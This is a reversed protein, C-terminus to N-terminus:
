KPRGAQGQRAEPSDPFRTRLLETYGAAAKADGLSREIRVALTLSQATPPAVDHYRQLFARAQQSRGRAQDLDALTFLAPPFQPSVALAQRLYEEARDPAGQRSLCLGANFYALEPTEYSRNEAALRFQQEAEATRNVRCLFNGYNTQTSANDPALRLADRFHLDAADDEGIRDYLLALALHADASNPDTRVARRLRELALQIKGEQMYGVGLQLNLQALRAAQTEPDQGPNTACGSLATTAALALLLGPYRKM